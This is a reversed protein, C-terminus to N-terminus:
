IGNKFSFTSFEKIPKIIDNHKVLRGSKILSVVEYRHWEAKRIDMGKTKTNYTHYTFEVKDYKGYGVKSVKINNIFENNDYAVYIDGVKIGM